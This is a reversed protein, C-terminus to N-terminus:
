YIMSIFGIVLKRLIQLVYWRNNKYEDAFSAVDDFSITNFKPISWETNWHIKILQMYTCWYNGNGFIENLQIIYAWVRIYAHVLYWNNM